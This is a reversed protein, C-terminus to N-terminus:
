YTTRGGAPNRSPRRALEKVEGVREPNVHYVPPRRDAKEEIILRHEVLESLAEKVVRMEYRIKQELLWWDMIGELGDRAEPHEALYALIYSAVISIKHDTEDSRV